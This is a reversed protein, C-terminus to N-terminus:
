IIRYHSLGVLVLLIIGVFWVPAFWVHAGADPHILPRDCDESKFRMAVDVAMATLIAVCVGLERNDLYAVTIVGGVIGLAGAILSKLNFVFM